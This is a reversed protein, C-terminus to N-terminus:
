KKYDAMLFYLELTKATLQQLYTDKCVWQRKGNSAKTFLSKETYNKKDDTNNGDASYYHKKTYGTMKQTQYNILSDYKVTYTLTGNGANYTYTGEEVEFNILDKGDLSGQITNKYTGNPNLILTRGITADKEQVDDWGTYEGFWTTQLTATSPTFSEDINFVKIKDDNGGPKDIIEEPDDGGCAFLAMAGFAMILYSFYKM